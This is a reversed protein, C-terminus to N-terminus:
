WLKEEAAHTEGLASLCGDHPQCMSGTSSPPVIVSQEEWRVMCNNWFLFHLLTLISSWLIRCFTGAGWSSSSLQQTGPDGELCTIGRPLSESLLWSHFSLIKASFSKVSTMKYADTTLYDTILFGAM